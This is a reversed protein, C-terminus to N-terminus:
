RAAPRRLWAVTGVIVLLVLAPVPSGGLIALHTVIAGLMVMALLLAGYFAARPVFLAVAGFVELAGTLYRFWQGAGIKAFMEVMAPAAALKSGGAALFALAALGQLAWCTINLGKSLPRRAPSYSLANTRTTM